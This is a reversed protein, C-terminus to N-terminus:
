KTTDVSGTVVASGSTEVTGTTLTSRSSSAPAAGGDVGFIDDIVPDLVGTVYAIGLAAIVAAVALLVWLYAPIGKRRTPATMGLGPVSEGPMFQGAYQEPTPVADFGSPQSSYDVGVPEPGFSFDPLTDPVTPAAAVPAAPAAFPMAPVPQAAGIGAVLVDGEFGLSAEAHVGAYQRLLDVADATSIGQLDQPRAKGSVGLLMTIFSEYKADLRTM